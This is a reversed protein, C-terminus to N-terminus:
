YPMKNPIYLYVKICTYKGHFQLMAKITLTKVAKKWILILKINVDGRWCEHLTYLSIIMYWMVWQLYFSVNLINSYNMEQKDRTCSVYYGATFPPSIIGCVINVVICLYFICSHFFCPEHPGMKADYSTIDQLTDFHASCHCFSQSITFQKKM